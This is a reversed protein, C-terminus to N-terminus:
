RRGTKTNACSGRREQDSYNESVRVAWAVALLGVALLSYGAVEAISIFGVRDANPFYQQVISRSALAAALMLTALDQSLSSSGQKRWGNGKGTVSNWVVGAVPRRVFVSVGFFLSVTLSTLPGFHLFEERSGTHSCIFVGVAVGLLSGLAAGTAERRARREMAIAAVVLVTLIVAMTSGSIGDGVVFTGAPLMSYGIGRIVGAQEM